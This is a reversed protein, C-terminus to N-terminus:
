NASATAQPVSAVEYEAAYEPRVSGHDDVLWPPVHRRPVRLKGHEAYTGFVLDWIPSTVGHNTAPNAFHHSLHHRRAWRGYAHPPAHTHTRRHLLEYGAYTVGFGLVFSLARRPGFAFSGVTGVAALAVAATKAKRATPTFYRTDTHHAQHESGFDGDFLGPKQDSKRQRPAHGAFRHLAYEAFSWTAAGAAFAVPSLLM